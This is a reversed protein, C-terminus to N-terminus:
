HVLMLRKFDKVTSLHMNVTLLSSMWSHIVVTIITDEDNVKVVYKGSHEDFEASFAVVLDM